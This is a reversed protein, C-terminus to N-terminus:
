NVPNNIGHRQEEIRNKLFRQKLKEILESTYGAIGFPMVNMVIIITVGFAFMLYSQFGRFLEPMSTVLLAGVIPGVSHTMGGLVLM